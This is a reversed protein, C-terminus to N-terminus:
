YVEVVKYVTRGNSKKVPLFYIGENEYYRIDDIIVRTSGSPLQRVIDGSRYQNAGVSYSQPPRDYVYNSSPVDVVRYGRRSGDWLYYINNYMYYNRGGIVVSVHGHPLSYVIAGVPAAVVQYGQNYPRYFIGNLFHYTLGGLMFHFAAHNNLRKVRYGPRHHVPVVHKPRYVVPRRVPRPSVRHTNKYSKASQYRKPNSARQRQSKQVKQTMAKSKREYDGREAFASTSILIIAISSLLIIKRM